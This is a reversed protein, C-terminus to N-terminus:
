FPSMFMLQLDLAGIVVVSVQEGFVDGIKKSTKKKKQQHLSFTMPKKHNTRLSNKSMVVQDLEKLEYM